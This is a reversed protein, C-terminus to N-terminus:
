GSVLVSLKKRRGKEKEMMALMDKYTAIALPIDLNDSDAALHCVLEDHSFM